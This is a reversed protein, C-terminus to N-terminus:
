VWFIKIVRMNSSRRMNSVGRGGETLDCKLSKMDKRKGCSEFSSDTRFLVLKVCVFLYFYMPSPLKLEIRLYIKNYETTLLIYKVGVRWKSFSSRSCSSLLNVRHERYSNSLQSRELIKLLPPVQQKTSTSLSPIIRWLGM